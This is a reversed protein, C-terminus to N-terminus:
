TAVFRVTDGIRFLSHPKKKNDFLCVDTKGIIRWGAPSEFPYIGTQLQALGVSGEPVKLRPTELRPAYIRKDLIGMYPFGPLFGVAFVTYITSAHIEVVEAETLGAYSCVFKMDPGYEGGYRVPIEHSRPEPVRVTDIDKAKDKLLLLFDSFSIRRRDFRILCSTFSPIIDIVEKLGLAKLFFYYKRILKNVELDITDGFVIRVGDEGYRSFEM